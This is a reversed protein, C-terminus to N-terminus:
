RAVRAGRAVTTRVTADKRKEVGPQLRTGLGPGQLPYIYGREVRPLDTVLERYWSFFSARVIEQILANPANVALHVNATLTVPGVCDHPAVPLHWAEAMAAIKRGESLGGVWCLDFMVVGVPVQALLDRFGWRSALLESSCVPVRTRRAFEALATLGDVRVPDEYWFPEFQELAHAIGNAATLNWLSHFEVMIDIKNGVARRIKGFPELARDLDSPSIYMGDSAHAYADFPWIKMGTYGEEVLSLALEDARNLFADLDEYPGTQAGAVPLGWNDVEQVPRERIYRYGACTNYIRVKDRTLGGLLQYIPQGSAQGVIDWLAIDVASNGRTEVGTGRFGVYGVMDRSHRDIRRPDQGLLYPAASEHIYSEVAQAGFFTEGLGTLGEDTHVLVWILNPYEALRITDLATIKV